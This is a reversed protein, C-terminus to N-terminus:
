LVETIFNRILIIMLPAAKKKIALWNNCALRLGDASQFVTAKAPKAKPIM